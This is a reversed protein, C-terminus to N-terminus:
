LGNVACEAAVRDAFVTGAFRTQPRRVLALISRSSWRATARARGPRDAQHAM